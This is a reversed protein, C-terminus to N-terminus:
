GPPAPCLSLGSAPQIELLGSDGSAEPASPAESVLLALGETSTTPASLGLLACGKQAPHLLWALPFLSLVPGQHRRPAKWPGPAALASAGSAGSLSVTSLSAPQAGLLAPQRCPVDRHVWGQAESNRGM